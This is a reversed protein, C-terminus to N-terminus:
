MQHHVRGVGQPLHFLFSVRVLILCRSYYIVRVAKVTKLMTVPNYFLYHLHAMVIHSDGKKIRVLRHQEDFSNM